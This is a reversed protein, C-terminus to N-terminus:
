ILEDVKDTLCSVIYNTSTMLHNVFLRQKPKLRKDGDVKAQLMPSVCSWWGLISEMSKSKYGERLITLSDECLTFIEAYKVEIYSYNLNPLYDNNETANAFEDDLATNPFVNDLYFKNQLQSLRRKYKSADEKTVDNAYYHGDVTPDYQWDSSYRLLKILYNASIAQTESNMGNVNGRAFGAFHRNYGGISTDLGALWGFDRGIAQQYYTPIKNLYFYETIVSDSGNPSVTIDRSQYDAILTRLQAQIETKRADTFVLQYQALFDKLSFNESIYDRRGGSKLIMRRFSFTDLYCDEPVELDNHLIISYALSLLYSRISTLVRTKFAKEETEKKEASKVMVGLQNSSFTQLAIKQNKKNLHEKFSAFANAKKFSGSAGLEARLLGLEEESFTLKTFYSKRLWLDENLVLGNPEVSPLYSVDRYETVYDMDMMRRNQGLDDYILGSLRYDFARSKYMSPKSGYLSVLEDTNLLLNYNNDTLEFSNWRFYKKGIVVRQKSGSLQYELKHWRDPRPDKSGAALVDSPHIGEFPMGFLTYEDPEGVGNEERQPSIGTAFSIIEGNWCSLIFYKNNYNSGTDIFREMHGHIRKSRGPFCTNFIEPIWESVDLLGYKEIVEDYMDGSNLKSSSYFYPVSLRIRSFGVGLSLPTPGHVLQTPNGNHIAQIFDVLDKFREPTDLKVTVFLKCQSVLSNNTVSDVSVHLQQM